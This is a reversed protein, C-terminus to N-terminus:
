WFFEQLVGEGEGKDSFHRYQFFGERRVTSTKDERGESEKM